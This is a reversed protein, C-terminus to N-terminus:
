RMETVHNPIYALATLITLGAQEIAEPIPERDPGEAAFTIPAAAVRTLQIARLLDGAPRPSTTVGLADQLRAALRGTGSPLGVDTQTEVVLTDSLVPGILVVAQLRARDAQDLQAL